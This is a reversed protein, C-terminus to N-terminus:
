SRFAKRREKRPWKPELQHKALAAHKGGGGSTKEERHQWISEAGRAAAKRKKAARNPWVRRLSRSPSREVASWTKITSGIFAANADMPSCNAGATERSRARAGGVTM